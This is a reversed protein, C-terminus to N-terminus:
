TGSDLLDPSRYDHNVGRRRRKWLLNLSPSSKSSTPRPHRIKKTEKKIFNRCSNRSKPRIKTKRCSPEEKNYTEPIHSPRHPNHHSYIYPFLIRSRLQPDFAQIYLVSESEFFNRRSKCQLSFRPHGKLLSRDIKM